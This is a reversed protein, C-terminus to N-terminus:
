LSLIVKKNLTLFHTKFKFTLKFFLLGSSFKHAPLPVEIGPKYHFLKLLVRGGLGTRQEEIKLKQLCIGRLELEKDSLTEHLDHAEQIEAEHELELLKVTKSIFKQMTESSSIESNSFDINKSKDDSNNNSNNLSDEESKKNQSNKELEM